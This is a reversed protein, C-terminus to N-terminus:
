NLKPNIWTQVGDVFSIKGYPTDNEQAFTYNNICQWGNKSLLEYLLDEVQKNHTGIHLRKVKKNVEELSGNIVEFEEGQVDLDVLDILEYKAIFHSLPLQPVEEIVKWGTSLTKIEKGFYEATKKGFLKGFIQFFRDLLSTKSFFAEKLKAQGYWERATNGPHGQPKGIYFRVTDKKGGVVCNYIEFQEKTLGNYLLHEQLWKFHAPEAEVAIVKINHIGKQRAALVGRAAWRGYGAGLEVITYSDKALAASELIDMWEFYEEDFPPIASSVHTSIREKFDSLYDKHSRTGIFDVEFVTPVDGEYPKFQKFIDHHETM